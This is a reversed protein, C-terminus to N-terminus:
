PCYLMIFCLFFTKDQGLGFAQHRAHRRLHEDDRPRHQDETQTGAHHVPDHQQQQPASSLSATPPPPM